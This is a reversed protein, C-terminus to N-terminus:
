PRPYNVKDIVGAEDFARKRYQCAECTGCPKDDNQYCSWTLEFPVNLRTGERVIDTKTMNILPTKLEIHHSPDIGSNLAINFDTYFKPRCDPYGVWDNKNAGVFIATAGIVEAWSTAIALINGNRFPVCTNEIDTKNKVPKPLDKESKVPVIFKEDVLSNGGIDKFYGIDVTLEYKVKYYECLKKACIQEKTVTKQGYNLHLVALEYGENQAIGLCTASDMGGSLCIIAIEKKKQNYTEVNKM